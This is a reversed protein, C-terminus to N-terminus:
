LKSQKSSPAIVGSSKLEKLDAASLGFELLFAETDQGYEPESRSAVGPTESLRPAPNAHPNGDDDVYFTACKRHHPHDAVEELTLIPTACADPHKAFIEQWERRTKSRFREAFRARMSPWSQMDLQAPLEGELGLAAVAERYFQPEIAGLAYYGSGDSPDADQLTLM